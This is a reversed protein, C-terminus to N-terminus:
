AIPWAIITRHLSQKNDTAAIDGPAGQRRQSAAPADIRQHAFPVGPQRVEADDLDNAIEVTRCAECAQRTKRVGYQM